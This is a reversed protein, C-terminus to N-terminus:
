EKSTSAIHEIVLKQTQAAAAKASRATRAAADVKREITKLTDDIEATKKATAQGVDKVTSGGNNSLQGKIYKVDDPLTLLQDVLAIAKQFWKAVAKVKAWGKLKVWLAVLVIILGTWGLPALWPSSNVLWAWLLELTVMWDIDPM